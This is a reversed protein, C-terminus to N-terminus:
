NDIEKKRRIVLALPENPKRILNKITGLHNEFPFCSITDLSGFKTAVDALHILNHVNYSLFSWRWIVGQKESFFNFPIKQCIGDLRVFPKVWM